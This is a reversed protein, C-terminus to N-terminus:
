KYLVLVKKTGLHIDKENWDHINKMIVDKRYTYSSGKRTGVDNTIFNQSDYGKVVLMHYIPGPPTFNPNGIDRGALPVVVPNGAAIEAEIEDITPNEIIKIHLNGGFYVDAWKKTQSITTSEWEGVEKKEINQIKQLEAEFQDKTLKKEELYLGANLISAEECMEEHFADWKSLPAQSYFPMDLLYKEPITKAPQEESALEEKGVSGTVTEAPKNEPEPQKTTESQDQAPPNVTNTQINNDAKRGHLTFYLAVAAAIIAMFIIIKTIKRLM